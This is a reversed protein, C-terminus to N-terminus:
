QLSLALRFGIDHYRCDPWYGSRYAVRCYRAENPWSGGCRVRGTGKEPGIPNEVIGKKNCAEYYESDYWDECWEWVNGSMDYLGLQNPYKQGVPKTTSGSNDNFWGVDKLCDSGSYKYGEAHFKGAGAKTEEAPSIAKMTETPLGAMSVVAPSGAKSAEAPLRAAYEWEAERPLRYVYGPLRTSETLENLKKIFLQADDWSVQEVPLDDGQFYSPNPNLSTDPHSQTEGVSEAQVVARWLAQAVPYKGLYFDSVRVQHVPRCSKLLDGYEDGMDFVGGEVPLMWFECGNVTEMHPELM